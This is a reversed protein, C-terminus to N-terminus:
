DIMKKVGKITGGRRSNWITPTVLLVLSHGVKFTSKDVPTIKGDKGPWKILEDTKEEGTYLKVVLREKENDNGYKKIESEIVIGIVALFDRPQLRIKKGDANIDERGAFREFMVKDEFVKSWKVTLYTKSSNKDNPNRRIAMPYHEHDNTEYKRAKLASSYSSIMDFVSIPNNQQRWLALDAPGKIGDIGIIENKRPAPLKAKSKLAFKVEDCMVKYDDLTPEKDCMSDFAGSFILTYIATASIGSNKSLKKAESLKNIFEKWNM